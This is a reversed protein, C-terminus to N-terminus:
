VEHKLGAEKAKEDAVGCLYEWEEAGVRSVSLRSQKLMQLGELKGQSGMEKLERLTIPVAFKKVFEVHVLGWKPKEKTSSPDYYAAGPRRATGASHNDHRTRSTHIYTHM